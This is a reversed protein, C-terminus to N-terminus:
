GKPLLTEGFSWFMMKKVVKAIYKEVEKKLGLAIFFSIKTIKKMKLKLKVTKECNESGQKGSPIV